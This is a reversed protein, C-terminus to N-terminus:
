WDTGESAPSSAESSSGAGEEYSVTGRDGHHEAELIVEIDEARFTRPVRLEIELGM